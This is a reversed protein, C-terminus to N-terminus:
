DGWIESYEGEITRRTEQIENLCDILDSVQVVIEGFDLSELDKATLAKIEDKRLKKGVEVLSRKIETVIVTAKKFDELNQKVQDGQLLKELELKEQRVKKLEVELHSLDKDSESQSQELKERLSKEKEESKELDQILKKNLRKIEGYDAPPVQIQEVPQNQLRYNETQLKHIKQQSEILKSQTKANEEQVAINKIQLERNAAELEKNKEQSVDLADKANYFDQLVKKYQETETVKESLLKEVQNQHDPDRDKVISYQMMKPLSNFTEVMSQGDLETSNQLKDVYETFNILQYARSKAFGWSKLWDTFSFIDKRGQNRFKEQADKLVKGVDYAFGETIRHMRKDLSLYDKREESDLKEYKEINVTPTYVYVDKKSM